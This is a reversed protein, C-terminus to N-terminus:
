SVSERSKLVTSSANKPAIQSRAKGGSFVWRLIKVWLSWAQMKAPLGLSVQATALSDKILANHMPRYILPWSLIALGCTNMKLTHRLVVPQEPSSIIKYGHYGNFGIPGTFRFKISNCLIYEKVFYRIPGHGGKAGVELSRDFEMRPWIHKPWLRDEKSALSDILEGAQIQNVDLECCHVNLVKM